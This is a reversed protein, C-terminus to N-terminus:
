KSRELIESLIVDALMEKSMLPVDKREDKTVFIVKNTDGAFGAGKDNLNNAIIMDVNKRKLKSLSNEILNETEMSFGCVFQNDQKHEGIFGLIDKTRTLEIAMNSESKKMKNEHVNIPTYDAVAASKIIIDQEMYHEKVAEYMDKASLVDIVKVFEPKAITTKGTILTVEAGRLAAKRAIAYGMKGTSHNTIYRVPDIKEITAGATVLVKKGVMDKDITNMLIHEFLLEEKPLKGKGIDNCALRGEAPEVIGIGYKKLKEINDQVVQNEYMNTNMAPVVIIRDQMALATTTLMDDAIGNAMKGIVNASAPAVMMISARKALA